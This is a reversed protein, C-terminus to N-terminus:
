RSYKEAFGNRLMGGLHVVVGDARISRRREVVVHPCAGLHVRERDQCSADKNRAVNSSTPVEYRSQILQRYKSPIVTNHYTQVCGQGEWCSSVLNCVRAAFPKAMRDRKKKRKAIGISRM